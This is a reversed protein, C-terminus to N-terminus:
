TVSGTVKDVAGIQPQAAAAATAGAQAYQGPTRPGALTTVTDGSLSAGDPTFLAPPRDNKFYDPILVSKGDSGTIKLSDGSRKFDGNFLLRADAITIIDRGAGELSVNSDDNRLDTDGGHM